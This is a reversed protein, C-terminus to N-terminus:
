NGAECREVLAARERIKGDRVRWSTERDVEKVMCASGGDVFTLMKACQSSVDIIIFLKLYLATCIIITQKM